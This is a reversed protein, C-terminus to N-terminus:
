PAGIAGIIQASPTAQQASKTAEKMLKDVGEQVLPDVSPAPTADSSKSIKPENVAIAIWNFSVEELQPADLKIKFGKKTKETVYFTKLFASATAEGEHVMTTTVLPISDYEKDFNITVTDSDKEIIAIGATDKNFAVQDEFSVKGKFIVSSFFSAVKNFITEEEFTAKGKIFTQGFIQLDGQLDVSGYAILKKKITLTDAAAELHYATNLLSKVDEQTFQGDAAIAQQEQTHKTQNILDLLNQGDLNIKKADIFGTSLNAVSADSFLGIRSVLSGMANTLAFGDATTNPTINVGSLSALYADPDYWSINVFLIVEGTGTGSFATLAKGITPGAVTAKTAVGATNSTTLYDGKEIPGNAASVKVPVRGALAVAYAKGQVPEGLTIGPKTTVVGMMSPERAISSKKVFAENPDSKDISVVDGAALAENSAFWEALDAGTQTDTDDVWSVLNWDVGDYMWTVMDGAGCTMDGAGGNLGSATVDFIVATNCEIFILHGDKLTGTTGADFDTITATGTTIFHSGASVDPTTDAATFAIQSGFNTANLLDISGTAGTDLVISGSNFTTLNIDNSEFSEGAEIYLPANSKIYSATQNTFALDYAIGVDGAATFQHPLASTIQTESVAFVSSGSDKINFLNGVNGFSGLSLSLLDGTSTTASAPTWDLGLLGGSTLAISSSTLQSLTGSTLSSSALYMGTGTTLSNANFAFASSTTTGTTQASTVTNINATQTVSNSGFALTPDTGSTNFTWTMDSGSGFTTTGMETTDLNLTLTDTASAVTDIGNTGGAITLTNTDSITQSTGSDGAATFSTMGSSATAAWSLVGSGNNSLVYGSAAAQASPWTYSVGNINTGGPADIVLQGSNFTRLTLDNSEFSEGAELYMPANSRIYSATQNTMAINNAFSVDGPATFSTPLNATIATESVSFVSSGSDKINFINGLNGNTGINLSLLDGTGTTASGPSWDLAMLGGSTVATSTSNISALTGSTLSSSTLNLGTGSTLANANFAFASATTTGSVVSSTFSQAGTGSTFNLATTSASSGLNITDAGTGGTGINITDAATAGTGAINITHTGSGSGLNIATYAGTGNGLNLATTAAGGMSLTTATTNFLTATTQNTTIDGGNIAVDGSFTSNAATFTFADSAFAISPDTAGADFTWTTGSGSGFTTTGIETTDLNLTLTDTASAVTDLGNIGGVISLTNGDSITQSTGSDGAATFSSMTGTGVTCTIINNSADLCIGSSATGTALGALNLFSGGANNLTLNIDNTSGPTLAIIGSSTIGTLGSFIGATSVDWSTTDIAVTSSNNGLTTAGTSSLTTFAGTGPTTAGISAFNAAGAGTINWSADNLALDTGTTRGITITGTSTGTGINTALSGSGNITTAGLISTTGALSLTDLASGIGITDAVTNNTGINIGNGGAGTGINIATYAGAGTGLNLATTAAGGLSLNTVITNFLTGTTSSSSLLNANDTRIDGSFTTTGASINIANSSFTFAPDTVGADFTWTTGSGSGFTTTGIETTDLNLTLTDTAAAVTDLGNIGGIISLTNGDSITQSTGSDGAATFSSMTGGGYTCTILLNSGNLCLGSSATGTTIGSFTIAGNATIAGINTLNGVTGADTLTFINNTGDYINFSGGNNIQGTYNGTVTFGSATYTGGTLSGGSLSGGSLTAGNITGFGSITPSASGILNGTLTTTGTVALNGAMSVDGSSNVRLYKTTAGNDMVNFIDVSGSTAQLISLGTATAVTPTITQTAAPNTVLCTSCSSIVTAWSPVGGSVTLVTGAGGAALKSLTNTASAYLIDGTTYTSQATGGNTAGLTGTVDTSLSLASYTPTAGGHLVQTSTGAGSQSVVGSGNTYLLGGNTTFSSLTIAGSATIAGINTLNGVTGGDTITFLNNSGDYINFNGGNNITATYNGGVSLGTATYTGGSLTGGSLTGGSITAGNITGLGSLTPSGSGTINGTLTHAGINAASLTNVTLTGTTGSDALTLLTNTGDNITLTNGNGITITPSTASFNIDNGFGIVTGDDTISSDGLTQAATFKPITNTTGGPTTVGSGAGACNGSTLCITGASDPFTYTRNATLDATTITATRETGAAAGPSLLFGHFAGSPTVALTGETSVNGSSNIQLYKTTGANNTVNFIDVSGGSAQAISIGTATGVTPTITQTASPDSIVCNGCIGGGGTISAWSPVGGAVTLVTGTGGIGLKSLTNTASSYLIDGTTYTSQGTGGNTAALTGTVDATLSLASYTPTTGGHLVQTSTGAGSQSVVGSGNTYLLGGNTTFSSLTITGSSTIGTLGSITGGAVISGINSINGTTGGDTLTFINQTGDNINFVSTNGIQATYNGTVVSGTSTYTGGTLSGGSLSGGSLTAGNITGFGSLTPSGSGILNGTLTTTGTVSLNGAMSVNGSSNVQLYKTSGANNTVNFIDVSGGSAQAISIGTATAVTPTITQTVSPDKIVCTPCIGPVSQWSPIGGSVTLVNGSGGVGLKSLTNTASAYLIDGTTYTSQNTGGKTEPLVGTVETSAGALNLASSSLVGSSNSHVIGTSLGSLTITGSSTIGTAATITGSSNVAFTGGNVSLANAAVTGSATIAGINTINGVTGADTITFINQTGDYVNFTGGNNIQTTYNGIVTAGSSTYTGGTLSGGSLSGGSISAGNITGFGSLTPSGSGILNGSFTSTGTVAVNSAISVDGTSNVRLYKTSGANNTVNFIDVSGGSAQAVSIGTATAVTPTITQTAGPDTVVCNGCIGGSGTIAAWSPVGGAVTLVTGSGGVALKSLTNSASAYLIDGTTYTSQATGGNTAPLAGTVYSSGGALNLASSSLVGSGNSQVVGTSLGSLTITGSSTIGTAGTIAGTSTIGGSNNNLGGTLSLGNSFVWAGSITEGVNKRTINSNTYDIALNIEGSPSETLAFDAGLFDLTGASGSVVVDNEEVNIIGVGGAGADTSCEWMSLGDNWKLLEGTACGKLLTLGSSSVELGSNSSTSGTGGSSTLAIGLSNSTVALGNGSLDTITDGNFIINGGITLNSSLNAAGVVHLKSTPSATGIGVNDSITTLHVSTGTSTWGSNSVAAGTITLKKTTADTALTIGSGAAFTFSDNEGDATVTSQGSVVFNKFTDVSVDPVEASIKLGDITINDGEELQLAGTQGQLSLVGTNSITPITGTSVSVGSGASLQTILNGGTVVATGFNIRQGRVTLDQEVALNGSVTADKELTTNGGVTLNGGINVYDNFFSPLNFNIQELGRYFEDELGLVSPGSAIKKDKANNLQPILKEFSSSIYTGIAKTLGLQRIGLVTLTVLVIGFALLSTTKKTM